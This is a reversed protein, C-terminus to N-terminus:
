RANKTNSPKVGGPYEGHYEHNIIKRAALDIIAHAISEQGGSGSVMVHVCRSEPGCNGAAERLSFGGYFVADPRAVKNALRADSKVLGYAYKMEADTAKLTLAPITEESIVNGKMDFQREVASKKDYDWGLQVKRYEDSQDTKFSDVYERVLVFGQPVPPLTATNPTTACGTFVGALLLVYARNLIKIM